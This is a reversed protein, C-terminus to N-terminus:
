RCDLAYEQRARRKRLHERIFYSYINLLAGEETENLYIGMMAYEPRLVLHIKAEEWQALSAVDSVVM